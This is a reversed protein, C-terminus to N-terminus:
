RRGGIQAVNAGPAAPVRQEMMPVDGVSTAMRGTDDMLRIADLEVKVASIYTGAVMSTAKAREITAAMKESDASEDGLAELMAVLHDRVDSVKNKM